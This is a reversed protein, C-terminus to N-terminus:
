RFCRWKHRYRQQRTGGRQGTWLRLMRLSLTSDAGMSSVLIDRLVSKESYRPMSPVHGNYATKPCVFDPPRVSTMRVESKKEKSGILDEEDPVDGDGIVHKVRRPHEDNESNSRKRKRLSQSPNRSSDSSDFIQPDILPHIRPPKAASGIM